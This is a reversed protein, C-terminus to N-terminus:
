FGTYREKGVAIVKYSMHELLMSELPLLAAQSENSKAYTLFINENNLWLTILCIVKYKALFIQINIM